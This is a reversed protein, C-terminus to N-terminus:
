INNIQYFLKVYEFALTSKQAMKINIRSLSQAYDANVKGFNCQSLGVVPKEGAINIIKNILQQNDPFNGAGYSLLIVGGIQHNFLYSLCEETITPHLYVVAIKKPNTINKYDFFYDNVTAKKFFRYEQKILKALAGVHPSVFANKARCDNKILNNAPFLKNAFSVFTGNIPYKQLFILSNNLNNVADTKPHDWAFMSGTLIIKKQCNHLYVAAASYCLTDTGHLIVIKEDDIQNIQNIIKQWTHNNASSSDILPNIQILKLDPYKDALKSCFDDDVVLGNPSNKMGITGGTYLLVTM